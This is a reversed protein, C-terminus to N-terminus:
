IELLQELNYDKLSGDLHLLFSLLFLVFLVISLSNQYLTLILGGKKVPWLADKTARPEKDVDDGEM